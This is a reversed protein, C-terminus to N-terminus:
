PPLVQLQPLIEDRARTLDEPFDIELWPAPAIDLVEFGAPAQLFLDRLAEEHPQDARGHEAYAAVLAAFRRATAPTLRFFGITEGVTDYVLGAALHKRFEVIRGGALCLKVPEDGPTFTTDFPIRDVCAGACLPALIRQDYLVDADMVLVDESTGLLVDRVCHVSLVSGLLFDPNHACDVALAPVLSEVATRIRDAAFGTVITLRRVGAAHLLRLHRALLSYGGFELLCKPLGTGTASGLRRGRGAALLIAHM